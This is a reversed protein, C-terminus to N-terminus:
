LFDPQSVLIRLLGLVCPYISSLIFCCLSTLLSNTPWSLKYFRLPPHSRTLRLFPYSQLFLPLLLLLLHPKPSWCCGGGAQHGGQSSSLTSNTTPHQPGIKIGNAQISVSVCHCVFLHWCSIEGPCLSYISFKWWLALQSLQKTFNSIGNNINKIIYKWM